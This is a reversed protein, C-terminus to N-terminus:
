AHRTFFYAGGSIRYYRIVQNQRLDDSSRRGERRLLTLIDQLRKIPAIKVGLLNGLQELSMGDLFITEDEKLSDAPLFVMAGLRKGSLAAAIDSGTLLGAV